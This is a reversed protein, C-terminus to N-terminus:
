QFHWRCSDIREVGDHQTTSVRHAPQNCKEVKRRWDTITIEMSAERSPSDRLFSQCGKKKLDRVALSFLVYTFNLISVIWHKRCGLQTTIERRLAGFPILVSAGVPFLCEFDPGDARQFISTVPPHCHFFLNKFKFIWSFKFIQYVPFILYSCLKLYFMLCLNFFNTHWYEWDDGEANLETPGSFLQKYLLKLLFFCFLCLFLWSDGCFKRRYVGGERQSSYMIWKPAVVCIMWTAASKSSSSSTCRIANCRRRPNRRSM